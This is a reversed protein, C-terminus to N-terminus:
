EIFTLAKGKKDGRGTRGVRHVYDDYTMPIDYNIVHSVDVIDLGRAAVDTAVLVQIRNEKFMALAHQRQSQTKNGHISASKFGRELLTKSLREVGHKTRGFILVKNFEKQNLFDHLMDLKNKGQKVRVIDQEVNKSTDRTKISIRVPEFLFEGILKEVERSLTASFFLTHHKVPMCKVLYRMDAVFGMDLMRDAEDLVLVTVGDLRINKQEMHDILRGPTAIVIHPNKSLADLQPRQSQGGILVATRLGLSHGVKRLVEEVQLALERTPLIVLGQGKLQALRQIMPIGFALTKGTGTQAIVVVDTGQIAIPIAQRQIPTPEVFRLKDLIALLGPAIGLGYFGNTNPQDQQKM